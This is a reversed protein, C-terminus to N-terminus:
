HPTVRIIQDTKGNDTSLYLSGDPGQVASRLRGFQKTFLDETGTVKNDADITLIKLHQDKLVAMALAGDWAKWQTGALFSAGSPAITPAGSSWIADIADPITAKDTMKVGIETYPGAPPNWGFNGPLLLNVEDDVTSGHEVSIGVANQQAKSYFAIGQVNRHGYSYIRPDFDGGLNGTAAPKGDRDIRLIKGGLNKHDQPFGGTAADGTGVWLYGDPGFALRCGAHRGGNAPLDTVIDTRDTMQKLDASLKWRAVRVDKIDAGKKTAFCTYINHNTAFAPDISIGLLGAEGAAYIDSIVPYDHVKGNQLLHLTGNREDFLMEKTPLFAIEWIHDYGGVVQETTLTPKETSKPTVTVKAPAVPKPAFYGVAWWAGAGVLAVAFVILGIVLWRRRNPLPSPPTLIPSGSVDM